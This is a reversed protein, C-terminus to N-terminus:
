YIGPVWKWPVREAWQKWQEGFREALLRDEMPTRRLISYVTFVRSGVSIIAVVKGLLTDWAGCEWFWSGAGLMVQSICLLALSGGSYGPHRVISYPGWTVLQHEDRVAVEFTFHRGLALFCAKRIAAGAMVLTWNILYTRSIGINGVSSPPGWVLANLVRKALPSTPYTHALIVAIECFSLGWVSWKNFLANVYISTGFVGEKAVEDKSPPPTPPTVSVHYGWASTLTFPIRLLSM